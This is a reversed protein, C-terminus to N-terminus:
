QPASVKHETLALARGDSFQAPVGERLFQRDRTLSIRGSVGDLATRTIEQNKLWDQAIRFADIGLAYFRELEVSAADLRPYLMVAAHDPQLIFPMDIFRVGNLDLNAAPESKDDVIQSSAYIQVANGLFPRILRTKDSNLAIFVVDATRASLAQRLANLNVASSSYAFEAQHRGGLKNWEDVFAQHIRKALATDDNITLASRKGEAYALQAIQRAENELQLGFVYMNGPVRVDGDPANLTLTPVRVLDSAAIASVANRTLPGVIMRAGQDIAKQYTTLVEDSAEGTSYVVIPLDGGGQINAANVFGQRVAAAHRAFSSSALPLVLAINARPKAAPEQASAFM